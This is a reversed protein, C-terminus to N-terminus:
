GISGSVPFLELRLTSLPRVAMGATRQDPPQSDSPAQRTRGQKCESRSIPIEPREATSEKITAVINSAYGGTKELPHGHLAISQRQRAAPGDGSRCRGRAPSRPLLRSTSSIGSDAPGDGPRIKM